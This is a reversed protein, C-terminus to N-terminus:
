PIFENDARSSVIGDIRGAAICALVDIKRSVGTRRRQRDILHWAMRMTQITLGLCNPTVLTKLYSISSPRTNIWGCGAAGTRM